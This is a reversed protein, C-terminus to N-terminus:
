HQLRVKIQQTGTKIEYFACPLVAYPADPDGYPDEVFPKQLITTENDRARTKPRPPASSIM